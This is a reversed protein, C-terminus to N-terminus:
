TVNGVEKVRNPRRGAKGAVWEKAGIRRRVRASNKEGCRICHRTYMGETTKGCNICKGENARRIQYLRQRTFVRREGIVGEAMAYECKNCVESSRISHICFLATNVSSLDTM